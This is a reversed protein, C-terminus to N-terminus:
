NSLNLFPVTSGPIMQTPLVGNWKEVAKLNVYEEGGQQTIAKAQIEIRKAEAEAELIKQKAKEEIQKTINQEAQFKQDEVQKTEIANEYVDSFDFNTISFADIYIGKSELRETLLTKIEDRVTERQDILEQATFKAAVAKISEQIAPSIYTTEFNMGLKQYLMNVTEPNLHYNLAVGTDVTQIDKSYALTNTEMVVTRVEIEKVSQQLPIRFHMGEDLVKNSVAGWNLVVGRHGASIIVLPNILVFAVVTLIAFVILKVISSEEM